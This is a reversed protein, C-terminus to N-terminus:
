VEGLYESTKKWNGEEQVLIELQMKNKKKSELLEHCVASSQKVALKNLFNSGEVIMSKILSELM